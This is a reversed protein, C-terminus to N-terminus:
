VAEDTDVREAEVDTQGRQTYMRLFAFIGALGAIVTVPDLVSTGAFEVLGSNGVAIGLVQTFTVIVGGLILLAICIRSLTSLLSSV